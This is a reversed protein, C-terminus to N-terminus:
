CILEFLGSLGKRPTIAKKNYIIILNERLPRRVTKVLSLRLRM